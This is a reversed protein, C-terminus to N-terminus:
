ENTKVAYKLIITKGERIAEIGLSALKVFLIGDSSFLDAGPEYKDHKHLTIQEKSPLSFTYLPGDFDLYNKFIRTQVYDEGNLRLLRYTESKGNYVEFEGSSFSYENQEYESDDHLISDPLKREIKILMEIMKGFGIFLMGGIFSSVIISIGYVWRLPHPENLYKYGPEPIELSTGIVLGCISGIAIIIGGIVYFITYM